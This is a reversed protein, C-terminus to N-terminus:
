HPGFYLAILALGNIMAHAIMTPVLSRTQLYVVAFIVGVALLPLFAALNLHALAFLISSLVIATIRGYRRRTATVVYGRFFTEECIPVVVAAALLVGIFQPLPAHLVGAFEDLQNQQVGAYQLVLQLAGSVALCGIGTLVGIGALRNLDGAVWGLERWTLVGPRVIRLYVVGLFLGDLSVVSLVIAGPSAVGGSIASPGLALFFPLTVVNAVIIAFGLCALITGLSGYGREARARSTSGRIVYAVVGLAFLGAGFVAGIELAATRPTVIAPDLLRRWESPGIGSALAVGLEGGVTLLFGVVIVWVPWSPGGRREVSTMRSYGLPVLGM